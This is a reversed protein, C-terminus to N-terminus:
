ADATMYCQLCGILDDNIVQYGFVSLGRIKTGIYHESRLSEVLQIGHAFALSENWGFCLSYVIKGDVLARPILNSRLMTFRDIEGIIGNRLVSKADGTLSAEKLESTLLRAKFKPPIYMFRGEDPCNMEDLLTACEEVVDVSTTKTIAVPADQSGMNIDSDPGAAIGSCLENLHGPLWGLVETDIAVRVAEAADDQWIPAWDLLMQSSTVDEKLIQWVKGRNIPLVVTGPVIYRDPLGQGAVYDDVPVAARTEIVLNDGMRKLEGEYRGTSISSLISLPYFKAAVQKSWLQPIAIGSYDPFGSAVPFKLFSDYPEAM